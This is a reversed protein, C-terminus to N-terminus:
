QDKCRFLFGEFKIQEHNKQDLYRSQYLANVGYVAVARNAPDQKISLLTEIRNVCVAEWFVRQSIDAGLWSAAKVEM